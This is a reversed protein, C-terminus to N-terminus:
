QTSSKKKFFMSMTGQKKTRDGVLSQKEPKLPNKTDVEGEDPIEEEVEEEIVRERIVLYGEEDEVEEKITRPRKVIRTRKRSKSEGRPRKEKKQIGLREMGRIKSEEEEAKKRELRTKKAAERRAQKKREREADEERKRELTGQSLDDGLNEQAEEDSDSDSEIINKRRKKRKAPTEKTKEEETKQKARAPVVVDDLEFEEEEEDEDDSSESAKKRKGRKASRTEPPASGPEGEGEDSQENEAEDEDEEEDEKRVRNDEETRKNENSEDENEEKGTIAADKNADDQSVSKNSSLYRSVKGKGDNEPEIAEKKEVGEDVKEKGEEKKKKNEKKSPKKQFFDAASIKRKTKGSMSKFARSSELQKSSQKVDANTNGTEPLLGIRKKGIKGVEKFEVEGLRNSLVDEKNEEFLKVVKGNTTNWMTAGLDSGEVKPQVSYVHKSTVEDLKALEDKLSEEVVVKVHHQRTSGKGSGAVLYTVRVKDRSKTKKVFEALVQKAFAMSVRFEYALWKYTVCQDDVLVLRELEGVLEDVRGEWSVM